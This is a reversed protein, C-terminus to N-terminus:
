YPEQVTMSPTFEFSSCTLDHRSQLWKQHTYAIEFDPLTACVGTKETAIEKFLYQEADIEQILTTGCMGDPGDINIWRGSKLSFTVRDMESGIACSGDPRSRIRVGSITCTMETTSTQECAVEEQGIAQKGATAYLNTTLLKDEAMAGESLGLTAFSEMLVVAIIAWKSM